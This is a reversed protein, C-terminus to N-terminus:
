IEKIDIEVVQYCGENVSISHNSEHVCIIKDSDGNSIYVQEYAENVADEKDDAEVIIFVTGTFKLPVIFTAM